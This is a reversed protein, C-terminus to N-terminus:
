RAERGGTALFRAFLLPETALREKSSEESALVAIDCTELLIHAIERAKERRQTADLETDEDWLRTKEVLSAMYEARGTGLFGAKGLVWAEERMDYLFNVATEKGKTENARLLAQVAEIRPVLVPDHQADEWPAAFTLVPGGRKYIEVALANRGAKNKALTTLLRHARSILLGLPVQHHAYILAGSLTPTEAQWGTLLATFRQAFDQRLEEAAALATDVPFFALHRSM